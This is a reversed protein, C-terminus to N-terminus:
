YDRCLQPSLCDRMHNTPSVILATGKSPPSAAEIVNVFTDARHGPGERDSFNGESMVWVPAGLHIDEYMPATHCPYYYSSGLFLRLTWSHPVLQM